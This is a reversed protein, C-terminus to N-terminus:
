LKDWGKYIVNYLEDTYYDFDIDNVESLKNIWEQPFAKAGKVAGAMSGAIAAITDCDGGLNSAIKVTEIPNGDALKIIGLCTPVTESIQVGAGIYDYIKQMAIRKDSNKNILDLVWETRKEISASYWINARGMGEKMGSVAKEILLDINQEGLVASGIIMAVATAGAVAINTNHTARCANEVADVTRKLNGRGYIGVSAIRMCAGNTDGVSGSEEVSKGNRIMSLARLTSPGAINSNFIGENEGWKILHQAISMSDVKKMEIISDALALTQQTDDTIQGAIMGKHLLHDEPAPLFTDIEGFRKKIEDPSMMSSPMGMADGSAVGILSGKIRDKIRDM